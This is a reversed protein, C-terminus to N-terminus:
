SLCEHSSNLSREKKKKRSILAFILVISTIQDTKASSLTKILDDDLDEQFMDVEVETFDPKPPLITQKSNKSQKAM